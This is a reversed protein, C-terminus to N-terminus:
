DNRCSKMYICDGESMEPVRPYTLKDLAQLKEHAPDDKPVYFVAKALSGGIDIGLFKRRAMSALTNSSKLATVM